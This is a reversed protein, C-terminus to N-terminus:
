KTSNWSDHVASYRSAKILAPGQAPYLSHLCAEQKINLVLAEKVPLKNWCIEREAWNLISYQLIVYVDSEITRVSFLQSLFVWRSFVVVRAQHMYCHPPFVLVPPLVSELYTHADATQCCTLPWTFDKFPTPFNERRSIQTPTLVYTVQSDRM